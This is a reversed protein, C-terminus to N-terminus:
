EMNTFPVGVIFLKQEFRLPNFPCLLLSLCVFVFFILIIKLHGQNSCSKIEDGFHKRSIYSNSRKILNLLLKSHFLIIM